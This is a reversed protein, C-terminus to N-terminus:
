SRESAYQLHCNSMFNGEKPYVYSSLKEIGNIISMKYELDQLIAQKDQPINQVYQGFVFWALPGLEQVNTVVGEIMTGCVTVYREYQLRLIENEPTRTQNYQRRVMFRAAYTEEGPVSM